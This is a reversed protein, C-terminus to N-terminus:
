GNIGAGPRAPEVRVRQYSLGLVIVPVMLYLLGTTQAYEGLSPRPPRLGLVFFDLGVCMAPWILSTLTARWLVRGELRRLYATAVCTTIGTVAVAMLSTFVRGGSVSWPYLASAVSFVAGWLVAGLALVRSLGLKATSSASALPPELQQSGRPKTSPTAMSTTQALDLGRGRAPAATRRTAGGTAPLSYGFRCRLQGSSHM